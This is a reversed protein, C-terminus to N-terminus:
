DAADVERHGIVNEELFVDHPRRGFVIEDRVRRCEVGVGLDDGDEARGGDGRGVGHDDVAVVPPIVSLGVHGLECLVVAEVGHPVFGRERPAREEVLSPSTEPRRPVVHDEGVGGVVDGDAAVVADVILQRFLRERCFSCHQGLDVPGVSEEEVGVSEVDDRESVGAADDLSEVVDFSETRIQLSTTVREDEVEPVGDGSEVFHRDYPRLSALHCCVDDLEVRTVSREVFGLEDLRCEYDRLLGVGHAEVLDFAFDYCAM